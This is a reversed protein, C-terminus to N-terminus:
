RSQGESTGRNLEFLQVVEVDMDNTTIVLIYDRGIQPIKWNKPVRTVSQWKGRPDSVHWTVDEESPLEYELVWSDGAPGDTHASVCASQRPIACSQAVGGM